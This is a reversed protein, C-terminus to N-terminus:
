PARLVEVHTRRGRRVEIPQVVDLGEAQVRLEHAGERLPVQRLPGKGIFVGDVYVSETADVGVELLGRDQSVALGAPLDMDQARLSPQGRGASQSSPPSARPAGAASPALLPASPAVPAQVPAAEPVPKALDKRLATVIEFTAFAAVAMVLVIVIFNTAEPAADRPPVAPTKHGSGNGRGKAGLPPTTRAGRPPASGAAAVAGPAASPQTKPAEGGIVSAVADGLELEPGDDDAPKVAAETASFTEANASSTEAAAGTEHPTGEPKADTQGSLEAVAPTGSPPTNPREADADPSPGPILSKIASALVASPQEFPPGSDRAPASSEESAVTAADDTAPLVM